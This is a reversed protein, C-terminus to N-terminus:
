YRAGIRTKTRGAGVTAEGLAGALYRNGRGRSNRGKRKGASEKVQPCFKACSVLHAATAFVGMDVGVEAILDQAAVRGLGPLADLQAM